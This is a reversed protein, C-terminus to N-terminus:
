GASRRQVRDEEGLRLGVSPSGAIDESVLSAAASISKFIDTPWEQETFLLLDEVADELQLLGPILREHRAQVDKILDLVSRVSPFLAEFRAGAAPGTGDITLKM